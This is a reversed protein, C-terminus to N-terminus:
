SATVSSTSHLDRTQCSSSEKVIHEDDSKNGDCVFRLKKMRDVVRDVHDFSFRGDDVQGHSSIRRVDVVAPGAVSSDEFGALIGSGALPDGGVARDEVQRDDPAAVVPRELDVGGVRLAGAAGGDSEINM